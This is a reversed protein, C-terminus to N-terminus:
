QDNLLPGYLDNIIVGSLYSMGFSGSNSFQMEIEAYNYKSLNAFPTVLHLCNIAMSKVNDFTTTEEIYSDSDFSDKFIRVRAYKPLTRHNNLYLHLSDLKSYAPMTFKVRIVSGDVVNLTMQKNSTNGVLPAVSTPIGTDDKEKYVNTIYNAKCNETEMVIDTVLSNQLSNVYPAVSQPTGGLGYATVRNGYVVKSDNYHATTYTKIYNQRLNGGFTHAILPANFVNNIGTVYLAPAAIETRDFRGCDWIYGNFVNSHGSLIVCINEEDTLCIGGQYGGEFINGNGNCILLYNCNWLDVHFYNSNIGSSTNSEIVLGKYLDQVICNTFKNQYMANAGDAVLRIGIGSFAGSMLYPNTTTVCRINNFVNNCTLKQTNADLGELQLLASNYEAYIDNSFTLILNEVLNHSGRVIVAPVSNNVLIKTSETGSIKKGCYGNVEYFRKDNEVIISDSILYTGDPIFINNSANIAAQIARTDDTVGNGVAGFMQPTVVEMAGINARAQAKQKDTLTQETYLVTPISQAIEKKDADTLVYDQGSNGKLSALWESEAGVFGNKVAIAYATVAGLNKKTM